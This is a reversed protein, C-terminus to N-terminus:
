IEDSIAYLFGKLRAETDIVWVSFERKRLEARVLDQRGGPEVKKGQTKLEVFWIRCGPMLVIRDPVGTFGPSVFKLCMGGLKKVDATLRKELNKEKAKSM